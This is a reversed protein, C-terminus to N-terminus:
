FFCCLNSIPLFTFRDLRSGPIVIARELHALLMHVRFKPKAIEPNFRYETVKKGEM